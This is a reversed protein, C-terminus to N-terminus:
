IIKVKIQDFSLKYIMLLTDNIDIFFVLWVGMAEPADFVQYQILIEHETLWQGQDSMLIHELFVSAIHSVSQDLGILERHIVFRNM